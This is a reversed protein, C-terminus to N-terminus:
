LAMLKPSLALRRPQIDTHTSKSNEALMAQSPTKLNSARLNNASHPTKNDNSIPRSPTAAKEAEANSPMAPHQHQRLSIFMPIPSPRFLRYRRPYTATYRTTWPVPKWPMTAHYLQQAGAGCQTGQLHKWPTIHRTMAQQRQDQGTACSHPQASLPTHKEARTFSSLQMRRNMLVVWVSM